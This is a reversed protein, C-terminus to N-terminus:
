QVKIEENKPDFTFNSGTDGIFEVKFNSVDEVTCENSLGADTLSTTNKLYAGNFKLVQYDLPISSVEKYGWKLERVLDGPWLHKV